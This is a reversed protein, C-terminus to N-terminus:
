GRKSTVKRSCYNPNQKAREPVLCLALQRLRGNHSSITTQLPPDQLVRPCTLDRARPVSHVLNSYGASDAVRSVHSALRVSKAIHLLTRSRPLRPGADSGGILSLRLCRARIAATPNMAAEPGADVVLSVRRRATSHGGGGLFEHHLSEGRPEGVLLGQAAVLIIPALAWSPVRM